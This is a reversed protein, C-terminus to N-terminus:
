SLEKTTRDRRVVHGIAGPKLSALVRAIIFLIAVLAVLVLGAAFAREVDAQVSLGRYDFVFLPLAEQPGSFPNANLVSNGFVTVILPAAEGVVRAIGLLMATVIGTRATPLVVSWVTRWAPAGLAMSAERLSGHVVRLVEETTRTVNPLLMISLALSGAFGRFGYGMKVVVLAYIFLGAVITPLASMATVVTRVAGTIRGGIESIFIATIVGAPGGILVALGVQELTGVIAHSVGGVSAPALSTVGKQDESLFTWSLLHYGKGILWGVVLGLAIVVGLACATVIAGGVRNVAAEHDFLHRNAIYYVGLFVAFSCVVYGSAGALFTLQYFVVWVFSFAAALSGALLVADAATFQRPRRRVSRPAPSRGQSPPEAAGTLRETLVASM